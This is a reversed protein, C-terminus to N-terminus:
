AFFPSVGAFRTKSRLRTQGKEQTGVLFVLFRRRDLNVVAGVKEVSGRDMCDMGDMFDM